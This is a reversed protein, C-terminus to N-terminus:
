RDIGSDTPRPPDSGPDPKRSASTGHTGTLTLTRPLFLLAYSLLTVTAAGIMGAAGAPPILLAGALVKVGLLIVAGGLLAPADGTGRFLLGMCQAFPTIVSLPLALFWLPVLTAKWERGVFTDLLWPLAISCLLLVACVLAVVLLSFGWFVRRLRTPEAQADSFSMLAVKDVLNVSASLPIRLFQQIREYVGVDDLTGFATLLLTDAQTTLVLLWAEPACFRGFRGFYYRLLDGGWVWGFHGRGALAILAGSRIAHEALRAWLLLEFARLSRAGLVITALWGALSAIEVAGLMRFRFAKQACTQATVGIAELAFAAAILPGAAALRAPLLGPWAVLTAIIGLGVFAALWQTQFHFVAYRRDAGPYAILGTTQGWERVLGLLGIMVLAQALLGFEAAGMLRTSYLVGVFRLFQCILSSSGYYFTSHAARSRRLAAVLTGLADRLGLRTLPNSSRPQSM